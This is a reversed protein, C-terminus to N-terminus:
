SRLIGNLKWLSDPYIFNSTLVLFAISIHKRFISYFNENNSFCCTEFIEVYLNNTIYFFKKTQYAKRKIFTMPLYFDSGSLLLFFINYNFVSFHLGSEFLYVFVFFVFVM